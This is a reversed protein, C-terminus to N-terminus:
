ALEPEEFIETQRNKPVGSGDFYRGKMAVYVGPPLMQVFALASGLNFLGDSSGFKYSMDGTLVM